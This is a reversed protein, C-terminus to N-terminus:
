FSRHLKDIIPQYDNAWWEATLGDKDQARPAAGANLLRDVLDECHHKAAWMLATRGLSDAANPDAGSDLLFAAIGAHHLEAALVIGPTGAHNVASPGIGESILMRVAGLHGHEIAAFFATVLREVRMPFGDLGTLLVALCDMANRTAALEILGHLDEAYGTACGSAALSAADNMLVAEVCGVPSGMAILRASIENREAELAYALATWHRKDSIALDAGRSVLLEVIDTLGM